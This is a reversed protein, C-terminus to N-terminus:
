APEGAEFQPAARVPLMSRQDALQARRRDVVLALVEGTDERAPEVDDEIADGLVAIAARECRELAAAQKAGEAIRRAHLRLSAHERDQHPYRAEIKPAPQRAALTGAEVRDVNHARAM